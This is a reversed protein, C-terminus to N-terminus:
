LYHFGENITIGLNSSGCNQVCVLAASQESQWVTEVQGLGAAAHAWDTREACTNASDMGRVRQLAAVGALM